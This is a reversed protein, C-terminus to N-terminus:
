SLACPIGGKQQEFAAPDNGRWSMLGLGRYISVGCESVRNQAARGTHGHTCNRRAAGKSRDLFYTGNAGAWGLRLRGAGKM